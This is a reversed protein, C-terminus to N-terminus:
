LRQVTDPLLHMRFCGYFFGTPRCTYSDNNADVAYNRESFKIKEVRM